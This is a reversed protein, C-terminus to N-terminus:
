IVSVLWGGVLFHPICKHFSETNGDDTAARNRAVVDIGNDTRAVLNARKAIDKGLV